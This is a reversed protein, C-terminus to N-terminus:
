YLGGMLPMWVEEKIAVEDKDYVLQRLVVDVPVHLTEERHVFGLATAMIPSAQLSVMSVPLRSLDEVYGWDGPNRVSHSTLSDLTAPLMAGNRVEEDDTTYRTGDSGAQWDSIYDPSASVVGEMAREGADGRLVSHLFLSTTGMRSVHLIGTVVLLLLILGSVFEIAAQGSSGVRSRPGRTWAQGHRDTDTRADAM